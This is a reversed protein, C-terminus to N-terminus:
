FNYGVKGNLRFGSPDITENFVRTYAAKVGFTMGLVDQEAEAYVNAGHAIAYDEKEERENTSKLWSVNISPGAGIGARTSKTLDISYGLSPNITLLTWRNEGFKIKEGTSIKEKVADKTQTSLLAELGASFKGLKRKYEMGINFTKSFGDGASVQSLKDNYDTPNLQSYGATIAIQNQKEKSANEKKDEKVIGAEAPIQNQKQATEDEGIGAEAPTIAKKGLINGYEDATLIYAEGKKIAKIDEKIDVGANAYSTFALFALGLIAKKIMDTKTM